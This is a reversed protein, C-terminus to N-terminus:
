YFLEYNNNEKVEEDILFMIKSIKENLDIVKVILVLLNVLIFMYKNSNVSGPFVKCIKEGFIIVHIKNSFLKGNESALYRWADCGLHKPKTACLFHFLFNDPTYNKLWMSIM